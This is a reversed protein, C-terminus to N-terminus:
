RHWTLALSPMYEPHSPFSHFPITQVHFSEASKLSVDFSIMKMVAISPVVEWASIYVETEGVNDLVM